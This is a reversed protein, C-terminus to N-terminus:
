RDSGVLESWGQLASVDVGRDSAVGCWREAMELLHRVITTIPVGCQEANHTSTELDTKLKACQTSRDFVAPSDQQIMTTRIRTRTVDNPGYLIGGIKKPRHKRKPIVIQQLPDSVYSNPQSTSDARAMPGLPVGPLPSRNWRGTHPV